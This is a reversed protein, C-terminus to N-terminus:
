STHKHWLVFKQEHGRTSNLKHCLHSDMDRLENHGSNLHVGAHVMFALEVGPDGKHLVLDLKGDRGWLLVCLKNADPLLDCPM